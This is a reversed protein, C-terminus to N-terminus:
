GNTGMQAKRQANLERQRALQENRGIKEPKQNKLSAIKIATFLRNLHWNEFAIPLNFASLWYYILENTITEGSKKKPGDLESFWTATMKANMYRNIEELNESSLKRLWDEPPNPSVLMAEVYGFIEDDSKPDPGLFPKEFKSEWKSLSVLSHELELTFSDPYVFEGNDGKTEDFYEVGNVTISLV